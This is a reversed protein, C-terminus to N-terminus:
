GTLAYTATGGVDSDDIDDMGFTFISEGTGIKSDGASGSETNATYTIDFTQTIESNEKVPDTDVNEIGSICEHLEEGHSTSDALDGSNGDKLDVSCTHGDAEITMSVDEIGDGDNFSTVDYDGLYSVGTDVQITRVVEVTRSGNSSPDSIDAGTNLVAGDDDYVVVNDSGYTPTLDFDGSRALTIKKDNEAFAENVMEPVTVKMFKTQFNSDTVVMYYEGSPVYGLDVSDSSQGTKEYYDLGQSLGDKAESSDWDVYNGYNEPEESFLMVDGSSLSQPFKVQSSLEWEDVDAQDGSVESPQEGDDGVSLQFDGVSIGATAGIIGTAVLVVAGLVLWARTSLGLMGM